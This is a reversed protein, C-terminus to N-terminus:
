LRLHKMRCLCCRMKQRDYRWCPVTQEVISVCLGTLNFMSGSSPAAGCWLSHLLSACSPLAWSAAPNATSFPVIGHRPRGHCAPDM